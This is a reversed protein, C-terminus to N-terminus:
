YCINNIYRLITRFALANNRITSPRRDLKNELIEFYFSVRERSWFHRVDKVDGATELLQVFQGIVTPVRKLFRYLFDKTIYGKEMDNLEDNTYKADVGTKIDDFLKKFIPYEELIQEITYGEWKSKKDELFQKIKEDDKYWQPLSYQQSERLMQELLDDQVTFANSINSLSNINFNQPLLPIGNSTVQM